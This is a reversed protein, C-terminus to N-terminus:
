QIIFIDGSKRTMEVEQGLAFEGQITSTMVKGKWHDPSIRETVKVSLQIEVESDPGEKFTAHSDTGLLSSRKLKLERM